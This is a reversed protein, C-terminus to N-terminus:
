TLRTEPPRAPCGSDDCLSLAFLIPNISVAGELLYKLNM